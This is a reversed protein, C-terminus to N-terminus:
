SPQQPVALDDAGAAAAALLAEEPVGEPEYLPLRRPSPPRPQPYALATVLALASADPSSLAYVCAPLSAPVAM